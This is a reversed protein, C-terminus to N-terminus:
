EDEFSIVTVGRDRLWHWWDPQSGSYISGVILIKIGAAVILKACNHCPSATVYMTAGETSIGARAAYCIANQEAHIEHIESWQRHTLEGYDATDRCHIMGSPTGNYGHSIIRDNKVIVSGVQKQKCTSKKAFSKAIDLYVLDYYSKNKPYM